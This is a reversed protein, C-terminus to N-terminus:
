NRPRVEDFYPHALADKASIRDNADYKLMRHLLDIGQPDVQPCSKALSQAPWAPFVSRYDPLKSVGSWYVRGNSVDAPDDSPTGLSKFIQFLQGIESDGRFLVQGGRSMEAMICGVSWMDVAPVYHNEGLLIEPARYWLTVVEHTYKKVPIGFARGLGFDALKLVRDTRSVLLNQPKLDRHLVNRQHCYDIGRLLDKMFHQVTAADLNHNQADMLGKLDMELFEFVLTLKKESHVVDLLKAINDHRLEKLLSIERIATCPVGEEETDLRIRKLAVIAGTQHDHARFVVGYTGEGIKKDREYRGGQPITVPASM